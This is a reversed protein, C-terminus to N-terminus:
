HTRYEGDAIEATVLGVADNNADGLITAHYPKGMQKDANIASVDEGLDVEVCVASETTGILGSNTSQAWISDSEITFRM